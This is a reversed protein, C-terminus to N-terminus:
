QPLGFRKHVNNSLKTFETDVVGPGGNPSANHQTANHCITFATYGGVVRCKAFQAMVHQVGVAELDRM